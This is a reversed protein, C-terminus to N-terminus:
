CGESRLAAELERRSGNLKAIASVSGGTRQQNRVTSLDRRLEPCTRKRAGQAAVPRENAGALEGSEPDDAADEEASAAQDAQADSMLRGAAAALLLAQVLTNKEAMCQAEIDARIAAASGSKAYVANILRKEHAAQQVPLKRGNVKEIQRQATAGAERARSIRLSNKGRASCDASATSAPTPVATATQDALAISAPVFLLGSVIISSCRKKM